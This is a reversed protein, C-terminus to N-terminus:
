LKEQDDCIDKLRELFSTYKTNLEEATYRDIHKLIDQILSQRYANMREQENNNM